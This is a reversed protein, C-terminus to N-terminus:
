SKPGIAGEQFTKDTALQFLHTTSKDPYNDVAWQGETEGQKAFSSVGVRV